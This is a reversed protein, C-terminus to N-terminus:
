DLITLQPSEFRGQEHNAVFEGRRDSTAASNARSSFGAATRRGGASVSDARHGPSQHDGALAMSAVTPLGRESVASREHHPRNVSFIGLTYYTNICM